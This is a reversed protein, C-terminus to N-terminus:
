FISDKIGKLTFAQKQVLLSENMSSTSGIAVSAMSFVQSLDNPDLNCSLTPSHNTHVFVWAQGQVACYHYIIVVIIGILIIM